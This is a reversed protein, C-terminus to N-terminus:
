EFQLRIGGLYEVGGLDHLRDLQEENLEAGLSLLLDTHMQQTLMIQDQKYGNIKSYYIATEISQREKFDNIWLNYALLGVITILLLTNMNRMAIVWKM